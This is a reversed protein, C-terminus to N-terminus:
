SNQLSDGGAGGRTVKSDSGTVLVRSRRPAPFVRLALLAGVAALYILPEIQFGKALMVFHLAGLVAIPYTLRHLQRWRPGLRRISWGNSTVALPLMLVFAAMGITVYPRKALDALIQAPIQVDLVLWVLLHCLVLVFCMVGLARRFMMLNLGFHRRLPTVALVAIMLQLAREGYLHELAKVPDVGLHGQLGQWFMWLIWVSGLVYIIAPPVRRLARNLREM